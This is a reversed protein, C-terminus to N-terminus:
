EPQMLLAKGFRMLWNSAYLVEAHSISSNWGRARLMEVAEDPHLPKRFSLLFEVIPRVRDHGAISEQSDTDNAGAPNSCMPEQAQEAEDQVGAISRECPEAASLSGLNSIRKPPHADELTVLVRMPERPEDTVSALVVIPEPQAAQPEVHVVVNVRRDESVAPNNTAAFAAVSRQVTDHTIREGNEARRM